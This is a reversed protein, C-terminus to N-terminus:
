FKSWSSRCGQFPGHLAQVGFRM